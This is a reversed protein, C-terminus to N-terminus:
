LDRISYVYKTLIPKLIAVLITLFLMYLSFTRNYGTLLVYGLFFLLPVAIEMFRDQVNGFLVHKVYITIGFAVTLLMIADVPTHSLKLYTIWITLASLCTLLFVSMDEVDMQKTLLAYIVLVAFVFAMTGVVTNYTLATSPSETDEADKTNAPTASYNAHVTGSNYLIDLLRATQPDDGINMALLHQVPTKRTTRSSASQTTRYDEAFSDPVYLPTVFGDIDLGIREGAYPRLIRMFMSKKHPWPKFIAFYSKEGNQTPLEKIYVTRFASADLGTKEYNDEMLFAFQNQPDDFNVDSKPTVLEYHFPSRILQEVPLPDESTIIQVKILKDSLPVLTEGDKGHLLDTADVFSYHEVGYRNLRRALVDLTREIRINKKRLTATDANDPLHFMMDINVTRYNQEKTVLDFSGGPNPFFKETKPLSVLLTGILLTTILFVTVYHSLKTTKFLFSKSFSKRDPLKLKM